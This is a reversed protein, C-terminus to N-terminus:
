SRELREIEAAVEARMREAEDRKAIWERLRKRAQEIDARRLAAKLKEEPSAM